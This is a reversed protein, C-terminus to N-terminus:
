VREPRLIRTGRHDSRSGLRVECRDSKLENTEAQPYLGAIKV